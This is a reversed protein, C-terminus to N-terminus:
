EQTTLGLIYDRIEILEYYQSGPEEEYFHNEQDMCYLRYDLAEVVRDWDSKPMNVFIM